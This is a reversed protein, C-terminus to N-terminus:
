EVGSMSYPFPEERISSSMIRSANAIPTTRWHQSPGSLGCNKRWTSFFRLVQAPDANQPGEYTDFDEGIGKEVDAGITGDAEVSAELSVDDCYLSVIVGGDPIPFADVKYGRVCASAALLIAAQRAKRTAAHGHGCHWGQPLRGYAEIKQEVETRTRDTVFYISRSSTGEMVDFLKSM